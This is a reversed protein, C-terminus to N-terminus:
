YGLLDRDMGVFTNGYTGSESCRRWKGGESGRM